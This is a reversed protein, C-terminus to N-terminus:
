SAVEKRKTVEREIAVNRGSHGLAALIAAVEFAEIASLDSYTALPKRRRRDSDTVIVTYGSM